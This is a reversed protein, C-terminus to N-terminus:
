RRWAGVSTSVAGIWRTGTRAGVVEATATDIASATVACHSAAQVAISARGSAAAVLWSIRAPDTRLGAVEGRDVVAVHDAHPHHHDLPTPGPHEAHGGSGGVATAPHGVGHELVRGTPSGILSDVLEVKLDLLVVDGGHPEVAPEAELWGVAIVVAHRRGSRGRNRRRIVFRRSRLRGPDRGRHDLGRSYAMAGAPRARGSAAWQAPRSSTSFGRV